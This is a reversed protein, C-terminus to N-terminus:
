IAPIAASSPQVDFLRRGPSRLFKEAWPCVVLALVVVATVAFSTSWAISEGYKRALEAVALLLPYHLLYLAYSGHGVRQFVANLSAEGAQFVVRPVMNLTFYVLAFLTGICLGSALVGLSASHLGRFRVAELVLLSIPAPLGLAYASRPRLLLDGLVFGYMWIAWYSLFSTAPNAFAGWGLGIAAISIILSGILLVDLTSCQLTKKRGVLTLVVPLLAYFFVEYSLSWLPGNQGFPVAWRGRESSSTQLFMLNASLNWLSFSRAHLGYVLGLIATWGLALWYLPLIRAARRRAYHMISGPLSFISNSLSIRISIGSLVFFLLVANSAQDSIWVAATYLVPACGHVIGFPAPFLVFLHHWVVVLAALGRLSDFITLRVGSKLAPPYEFHM